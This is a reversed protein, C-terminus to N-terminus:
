QECSFILKKMEQIYLDYFVRNPVHGMGYQLIYKSGPIAKALAEGHDPPLIPDETGHIILTPAKVRAPVEYSKIKRLEYDVDIRKEQV